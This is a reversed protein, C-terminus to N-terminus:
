HRASGHLASHVSALLGVVHQRRDLNYTETERISADIARSLESLLSAAEIQGGAAAATARAEVTEALNGNFLSFQVDRERGTVAEGLRHAERMDFSTGSLVTRIAEAIELGGYQTLLLAARASGASQALLARRAADDDPLGAGLRTLIEGLTDDGLPQMRLIQCRSRITPLLRGPSHSTLIFVTRPPPEELSKLLANAASTNMDDAPDVIVVRYGGDFATMSLFRSVRRIEDVTIVTRFKKDKEIFPRTLHLVSPHAAQAMLRFTQSAPDPAALTEGRAKSLLHHALHFALTAKGIGRPGALLLAHHLKASAAASALMARMAEHGLLLANECPEPMDPLTDFQEPAIREFM